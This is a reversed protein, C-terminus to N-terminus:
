PAAGRLFLQASTPAAHCQLCRIREPHTTRLDPQAGPGSHCSLCDERRGLPHPMVPPAGPYAPAAAPRRQFGVFTSEAWVSETRRFVHCQRCRSGASLGPTKEHPMAPAKGLNGVVRGLPTHCSVCSAGLPPHAIVPPAGAYSRREERPILSSIPGTEVTSCASLLLSFGVLLTTKM